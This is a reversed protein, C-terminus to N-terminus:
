SNNIQYLKVPWFRYTVSSFHIQGTMTDPSEGSIIELGAITYKYAALTLAWRQIRAEAMTPISKKENFLSKLPDTMLTFPRGYLYQHFKKLGFVISLAKGELNSYNRETQTLTRSVFCIPHESGEEMKHSLLAGM